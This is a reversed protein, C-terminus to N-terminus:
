LPSPIALWYIIAEKKRERRVFDDASLNGPLYHSSHNLYPSTLSVRSITLFLITCCYKPDQNKSFWPFKFINFFRPSLVPLIASLQLFSSHSDTPLPYSSWSSERAMKNQRPCGINFHTCAGSLWAM